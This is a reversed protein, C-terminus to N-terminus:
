DLYPYPASPMQGDGNERYIELISNWLNSAKSKIYRTISILKSQFEECISYPTSSKPQHFTNYRDIANAHSSTFVQKNGDSGTAAALATHFNSVYKRTQNFKQENEARKLTCYPQITLFYIIEMLSIVSFGM